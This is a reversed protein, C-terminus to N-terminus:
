GSDSSREGVKSWKKGQKKEGDGTVEKRGRKGVTVVVGSEWKAGNKAKNKRATGGRM